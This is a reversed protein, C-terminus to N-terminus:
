HRLRGTPRRVLERSFRYRRTRVHAEVVALFTDTALEGGPIEMRLRISGSSRGKKAGGNTKAPQSDDPATAAPPLPPQTLPSRVDYPKKSAAGKLHGTPSPLQVLQGGQQESRSRGLAGGPLVRARRELDVTVNPAGGSGPRPEGAVLVSTDVGDILEALRAALVGPAPAPQDFETNFDYPLQGVRAPDGAAALRIPIAAPDPM